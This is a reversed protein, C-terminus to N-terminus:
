DRVFYMAPQFGWCVIDISHKANLMDAYISGFARQGNVLFRVEAWRPDYESKHVFWRLTAKASNTENLAMPTTINCDFAPTAM